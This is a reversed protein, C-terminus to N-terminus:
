SAKMFKYALGRWLVQNLSMARWFSHSRFAGKFGIGCQVLEECFSPLSRLIYGQGPLQPMKREDSVCLTRHTNEAKLFAGFATSQVCEKFTSSGAISSQMAFGMQSTSRLSRFNRAVQYVPFDLLVSYSIKGLFVSVLLHEGQYASCALSLFQRSPQGQCIEQFPHSIRALGTQQPLPM